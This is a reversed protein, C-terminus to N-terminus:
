EEVYLGAYPFEHYGTDSGDRIRLLTPLDDGDYDFRFKPENAIPHWGMIDAHIAIPPDPAGYRSREVAEQPMVAGQRFLHKGGEADQIALSTTSPARGLIRAQKM